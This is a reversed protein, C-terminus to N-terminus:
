APHQSDMAELSLRRPSRLHSRNETMLHGQFEQAALGGSLLLHSLHNLVIRGCPSSAGDELVIARRVAAVLERVSPVASSVPSTKSAVRGFVIPDPLM